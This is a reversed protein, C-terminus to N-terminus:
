APLLNLARRLPSIGDHKVEILKLSTTIGKVARYSNYASLFATLAPAPSYILTSDKLAVRVEATGAVIYLPYIGQASLADEIALALLNRTPNSRDRRDVCGLHFSDIRVQLLQRNAATTKPLGGAAILLGAVLVTFTILAIM